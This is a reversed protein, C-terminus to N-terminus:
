SQLSMTTNNTKHIIAHHLRGPTQTEICTHGLISQKGNGHIAKELRHSYRGYLGVIYGVGERRVNWGRKGESIEKRM